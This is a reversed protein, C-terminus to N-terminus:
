ENDFLRGTNQRRQKATKGPFDSLELANGWREQAQQLFHQNIHEPLQPAAWTYWDRLQPLYTENVDVPHLLALEPDMLDSLNAVRKSERPKLASEPIDEIEALLGGGSSKTYFQVTPGSTDAHINVAGGEALVRIVLSADESNSSTRRRRRQPRAPEPSTDASADPTTASAAKSSRKSRKAPRASESANGKGGAKKKRGSGQVRDGSVERERRIRALLESAPEDNPDQPVLEGRFAKALISQNFQTFLSECKGTLELLCEGTKMAKKVGEIIAKHESLPPLPFVFDFVQTTFMHQILSGTNLTDVYSRFLPSKFLYLCFEPTLPEIPTLRAIRQNLLCHDHSDTICVRGLFEDKLSQATLNMVLEHPGVVHNPADDQWKEPMYRTNQETWFVRGSVHLNGPRLLKVGADAYEKSPFAHGNQCYGVANWNTWCWGDPLEPLDTEDVPEPEEYRDKWDKPPQKGKAEYKALEAQEWRQRREARIRALLEHAPEVNPNKERWDATLRGSFAAALISQRFQELLPGVEELAKAARGSREQLAEIKAVIRRQETLPPIGIAIKGVAEPRARMLSGGVGSVDELLQERFAPERMRHMLFSPEIHRNRFVIWESSAIQKLRATKQVLWVRNIRPNIKCLLVDGPEVLQKTSGIAEGTLLEPSGTPYSPVSWVEWEESPTTSPDVLKTRAMGLKSLCALEWGPPLQQEDMNM